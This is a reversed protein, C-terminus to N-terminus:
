KSTCRGNFPVNYNRSKTGSAQYLLFWFDKYKKASNRFKAPQNKQERITIDITYNRWHSSGTYLRQVWWYKFRGFWNKARRKTFYNHGQVSALKTPSLNEKVQLPDNEDCAVRRINHVNENHRHIIQDREESTEEYVLFQSPNSPALKVARIPSRRLAYDTDVQSRRKSPSHLENGKKIFGSKQNINKGLLATRKKSPSIM